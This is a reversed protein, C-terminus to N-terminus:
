EKNLKIIADIWGTSEQPDTNYIWNEYKYDWVLKENEVICWFSLLLIVIIFIFEIILEKIM